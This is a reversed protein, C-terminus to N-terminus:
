IKSMHYAYPWLLTNMIKWIWGIRFMDFIWCNNLCMILHVHKMALKLLIQFTHVHIINLYQDHGVYDSCSNNESQTPDSCLIFRYWTCLNNLYHEHKTWSLLMYIYTHALFMPIVYRNYSNMSVSGSYIGLIAKWIVSRSLKCPYPHFANNGSRIELIYKWFIM